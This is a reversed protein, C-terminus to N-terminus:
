SKLLILSSLIHENQRIQLPFWFLWNIEQKEFLDWGLFKQSMKGAEYSRNLPSEMSFTLRSNKQAQVQYHLCTLLCSSLRPLM